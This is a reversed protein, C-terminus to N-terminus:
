SEIHLNMFISFNKKVSTIESKHFIVVVLKKHQYVFFPIIIMILFFTDSPKFLIVPFTVSLLFNESTRSTAISILKSM